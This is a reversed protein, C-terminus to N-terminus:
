KDQGHAVVRVYPLMGGIGATPMYESHGVLYSNLREETDTSATTTVPVVPAPTTSLRAPTSAVVAPSTEPSNPPQFTQLVLVAIAALSAAAAFGGALPWFRLPAQQKVAEEKDLRTMVRDCFNAETVTGLQQTMAARILHYREWRERLGADQSLAQLARRETVEDLEADMLASLEEKITM